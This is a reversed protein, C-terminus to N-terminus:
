RYGLILNRPVGNPVLVEIKEAARLRAQVDPDSWNTRTYIVEVDLHALADSLPLISTDNANAVGFAIHVDPIKLVDPSIVLYRPNPLRGDKQALYKMPHNSTLCLSVFPDIGRARDQDHSWENGGTTNPWWGEKRMREKSVLGLKDIQEFNSEDTFHYLCDHQGSKKILAIFDDVTM